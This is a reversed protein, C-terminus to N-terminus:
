ESRAMDVERSWVGFNIRYESVGDKGVGRAEDVWKAVRDELKEDESYPFEIAALFLWEAGGVVDASIRPHMDPQADAGVNHYLSAYLQLGEGTNSKLYHLLGGFLAKVGHDGLGNLGIGILRIGDVSGNAAPLNSYAPIDSGTDAEEFISFSANVIDWVMSGEECGVEEEGDLLNRTNELDLRRSIAYYSPTRFVPIHLTRITYLYQSETGAGHGYKSNVDSAVFRLTRTVHSGSHEPDSLDTLLDRFHLKTWREFTDANQSTPDHLRPNVLMIGATSEFHRPSAM